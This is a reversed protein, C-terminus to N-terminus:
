ASTIQSTGKPATFAMPFHGPDIHHMPYTENSPLTFSLTATVSENDATWDKILFPITPLEPVDPQSALAATVNVTPPSSVTRLATQISLDVNDITLVGTPINGQQADPLDLSFPFPSYTNGNHLYSQKDNVIRIPAALDPHTIELLWLLIESTHEAAAAAKFKATLNRM